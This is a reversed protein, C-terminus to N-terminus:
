GSPQYKVGATSCPYQGPLLWYGIALLAIIPSTIILGGAPAPPKIIVIYLLSHVIFLSCVVFPCPLALCPLAPCPFLLCHVVFLCHVIFLCCVVFLLLAPCPRVLAPGPCSPGSRPRPRSSACVRASSTSLYRTDWHLELRM